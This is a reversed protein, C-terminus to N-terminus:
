CRELVVTTGPKGEDWTSIVRYIFVKPSGKRVVPQSEVGLAPQDAAVVLDGPKLNPTQAAAVLANVRFGANPHAVGGFTFGGATPGGQVNDLFGELEDGDKCLEYNSVQGMKMAKKIDKDTIKEGKASGLKTAIVNLREPSQALVAYRFDAM